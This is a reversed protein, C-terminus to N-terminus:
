IRNVAEELTEFPTCLSVRVYGKGAVGFVMGPTIFIGKKQLLEDTFPLADAVPSKAWVFLGAQNPNVQCNLKQLLAIVKEKRIQYVQDQKQYWFDPQQLAAVTALQIPKFMGSDMNSKIKLVPEILASSGLVWGVRWGAMNFTKSLSNLELAVHEAGTVNFISTPNPNLIFSYPNDNVLLVGKRSALDVWRHLIVMSGPAGTPMHPYNIWIMKIKEWDLKEIVSWDPDWNKKSQMPYFIPEAGVMHTVATYTPYGLEPILVQDGSNLYALSIHTIAEKSGMMPLVSLPANVNLKRHYFDLVAQRFEPIGQYPQYGHADPYQATQSLADIVSQPPPLDPSGIGLNIISQGAARLAAIERLKQSFYYEQIHQLRNASHM